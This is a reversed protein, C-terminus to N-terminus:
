RCDVAVNLTCLCRALHVVLRVLKYVEPPVDVVIGVQGDLDVPANATCPTAESLVSEFQVVSQATGKLDFIPHNSGLYELCHQVAADRPARARVVVVCQASGVVSEQSATNTPSLVIAGAM